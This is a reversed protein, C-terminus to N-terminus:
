GVMKNMQLIPLMIALVIFLVVVGMALIMVPELIGFLTAILTHLEREQSEAAHDLMQELEGSAEGSSILQIMLPPFYGGTQLATALSSGERVRNTANKVTERMPLNELVGSTIALGELLPVHSASLISLTRAMRATEMGRILSSVLPLHLLFRHVRMRFEDRQMLRGFGFTAAALVVVLYVGYNRLWHSGTILIETILPLDQGTNEFVTVLKPVVFALLFSVVGVSMVTLIIPYLLALQVKQRMQQRTETYDALRELVLDLHGSQEGARVTAIYLGDFVHSFRSLADALSHGELVQARVAMLLSKLRPKEVQQGVTALADALPTGSRVLTALQRTMLALATVSIRGRMRGGGGSQRKKEKQAVEEVRLPTLQQERLQQRVQRESDGELIGSQERGKATLASYEYAGM